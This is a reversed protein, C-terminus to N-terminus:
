LVLRITRLALVQPQDKVGVGGRGGFVDLDIRFNYKPGM